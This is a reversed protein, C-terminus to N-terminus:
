DVSIIKRFFFNYLYIIKGLQLERYIIFNLKKLGKYLQLNISLRSRKLLFFLKQHIAHTARELYRFIFLSIFVLLFFIYIASSSRQYVIGDLPCSIVYALWVEYCWWTFVVHCDLDLLNLLRLWCFVELRLNIFYM